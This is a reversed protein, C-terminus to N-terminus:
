LASVKQGSSLQFLLCPPLPNLQLGLLDPEGAPVARGLTEAICVSTM